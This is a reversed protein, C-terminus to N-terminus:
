KFFTENVRHTNLKNQEYEAKRKANNKNAYDNLERITKCNLPIFQFNYLVSGEWFKGDKDWLEVGRFHDQTYMTYKDGLNDGTIKIVTAEDGYYFNDLIVNSLFYDSVWYLINRQSDRVFRHLCVVYDKPIESNLIKQIEQEKREIEAQRDQEQKAIEAQRAQEQILRKEEIMKAKALIKDEHKERLKEIFRM